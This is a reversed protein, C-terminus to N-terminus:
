LLLKFNKPQEKSKLILEVCLDSKSIVGRKKINIAIPIKSQSCCYSQAANRPLFRASKCASIGGIEEAVHDLAKRLDEFILRNRISKITSEHTRKFSKSSKSKSNEHPLIM